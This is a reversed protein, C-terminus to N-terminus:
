TGRIPLKTWTGLAASTVTFGVQLPQLVFCDLNIIFVIAVVIIDTSTIISLLLYFKIPLKMESKKWQMNMLCCRNDPPSKAHEGQEVCIPFSLFFFEEQTQICFFMKLFFKKLLYIFCASSLHSRFSDRHTRTKVGRFAVLCENNLKQRWLRLNVM